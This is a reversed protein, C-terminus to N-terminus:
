GAPAAIVGLMRAAAMTNEMLCARTMPGTGGPMPTIWGAVAAVEDPHVLRLLESRRRGFDECSGGYVAEWSPAVWRVPTDVGVVFATIGVADLVDSVATMAHEDATLLDVARAVAQM